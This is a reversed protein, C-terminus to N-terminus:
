SDIFSSESHKPQSNQNRRFLVLSCVEHSNEEEGDGGFVGCCFCCSRIKRKLLERYRQTLLVYIVADSATGIDILIALLEHIVVDRVTVDSRRTRIVFRITILPAVYFVLFTVIILGPVLFQKRYRGSHGNNGHHVSSAMEFMRTRSRRLKIFIFSYTGVALVVYSACLCVAVMVIPSKLHPFKAYIGGLISSFIWAAFLVRKTRSKTVSSKYKLPNVICILRDLTLIIMVNVLQVGIALYFFLNIEQYYPPLRNAMIDNLTESTADGSNSLFM